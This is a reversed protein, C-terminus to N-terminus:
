WSAKSHILGEESHYLYLLSSFVCMNRSEYRKGELPSLYFFTFFILLLNLTVSLLLHWPPFSFPHCHGSLVPMSNLKLYPPPPLWVTFCVNTYIGLISLSHARSQTSPSRELLLPASPSSARFYSIVHSPWLVSFLSNSLGGRRLDMWPCGWRM